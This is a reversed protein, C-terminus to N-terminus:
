GSLHASLRFPQRGSFYKSKFRYSIDKNDEGALKKGAAGPLIFGPNPRSGRSLKEQLPEGSVM